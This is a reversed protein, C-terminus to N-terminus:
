LTFHCLEITIATENPSVFATAAHGADLHFLPMVSLRSASISQGVGSQDITLSGLYTLLELYEHREWQECSADMAM